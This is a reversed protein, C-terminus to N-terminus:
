QLSISLQRPSGNRLVTVQISQLADLKRMMGLMAASNTVPTGNIATVVDRPQLGLQQMLRQDQHSVRYGQLQGAQMVPQLRVQRFVTQPATRLQQKLQQLTRPASGSKRGGARPSSAPLELRETKLRLTELKGNRSLIVRDAYIEHLTAGGPLDDGRRYSKDKGNKEAIIAMSRSPDSSAFVGHLTLRLRTDPASIPTKAPTTGPTAEGFLHLRSVESLSAPASALSSAPMPTNVTARAAPTPAQQPQWWTWSLRAGYWAILTVLLLNVLLALRANLRPSDLWHQLQKEAKGYLRSWSISTAGTM